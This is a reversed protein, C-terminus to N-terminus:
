SFRIDTYKKGHLYARFSQGRKPNMIEAFVEAAVNPGRRLKERLTKLEQLARPDPQTASAQKKVEDYTGDTFYFVASDFPEEIESKGTVKALYNAEIPIAPTLRFVGEGSFVAIVPRDKDAKVFSLQGNKLRVSGKDRRLEVNETRLTETPVGERLASYNPDDAFACLLLAFLM